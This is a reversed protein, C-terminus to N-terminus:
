AMISCDALSSDRICMKGGGTPGVIAVMENPRVELDLGKILPKDPTYGFRVGQFVVQGRAIGEASGDGDPREEEEDLLAFVREAGAIAAQLSTLVYATETVPESIQNVYQLFAQATGLTIAGKLAM